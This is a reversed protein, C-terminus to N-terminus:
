VTRGGLITPGKESLMNNKNIYTCWRWLQIVRSIASVSVCVDFMRTCPATWRTWHSARWFLCCESSWCSKFMQLDIINITIILDLSLKWVVTYICVDYFEDIIIIDVEYWILYFLWIKYKVWIGLCDTLDTPLFLLPSNSLLTALSPTWNM